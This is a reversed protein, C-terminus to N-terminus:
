VLEHRFSIPYFIYYFLIPFFFFVRTIKYNEMQVRRLGHFRGHRDAIPPQQYKQRCLADSLSLLYGLAEM